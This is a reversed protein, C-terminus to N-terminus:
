REASITLHVQRDQFCDRQRILCATDDTEMASLILRYLYREGVPAYVIHGTLAATTKDVSVRIKHRSDGLEALGETMGLATRASVLSSVPELHNIPLGQLHFTEPLDGGNHTSFFLGDNHLAEPNVTIHGLRLTGTPCAPWYFQYAITLRAAHGSVYLTKRVKGLPTEIDASVALRNDEIRWQPETACLDTIKHRGAAELVFHGTYYDAGYRIDDFYGHPLTGILPLSGLATHGWGDIALGRRCNLRLRQDTTEIDLFHGQRGIKFDSSPRAPRKPPTSRPLAPIRGCTERLREQLKQWRRDTIHTRFDSSWLFCLNQGEEDPIEARSALAEYLRWCRTNLELDDRGTLGWRLINYKAQKKVPVPQAATELRLRQGANPRSLFDLVQRPRILCFRHDAKLTAYLRAIREWESEDGCEAETRFRGPRFDFIEADNGYLAFTRPEGNQHSSLFDLYEPLEIEGHAYRQFKQFPISKNWIVPLATDDPGLAYQPLYRWDPNWDPHDSGPNDWEMIIARYGAQRYMPIAGSAYAQENVLALQPRFGLIREYTQLGFRQNARNVAAPVLPGILQAYGSGIFEAPGETCLARLETIWDPDIAAITELTYGSAEIGIPLDYRRILRLLPWYCRQVVEPRSEEEISSFMLNLHFFSYLNLRSTM